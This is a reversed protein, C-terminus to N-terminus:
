RGLRRLEDDLASDYPGKPAPVPPTAGAADRADGAAAPVGRRLLGRRRLGVGLAGLALAAGGILVYPLLWATRTAATDPPIALVKWGYKQTRADLIAEDSLGAAVDKEIRAIEEEAGGCGCGALLKAWNCTPCPCM